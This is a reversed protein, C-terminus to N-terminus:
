LAHDFTFNDAKHNIGDNYVINKHVFIKQNNIVKMMIFGFKLVLAGLRTEARGKFYNIKKTLSSTPVSGFRVM